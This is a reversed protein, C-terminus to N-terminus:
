WSASSIPENVGQVQMEGGPAGPLGEVTVCGIRRTRLATLGEGEFGYDNLMSEFYGSM